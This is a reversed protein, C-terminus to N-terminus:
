HETALRIYIMSLLCFVFAQLFAAFLGLFMMPIPVGFGGLFGYFVESAQHEGYINGFLRLTLSLNRALHSVLEIGFMLLMLPLVVLLPSTVPGFLHKVHAGAGVERVAVVNYYVFSTIALGLPVSVYATAPGLWPVMGLLNSVLIFAGLTGLIKLHHRGHHPINEELLNAFGSVAVEFTQQVPGPREVSLARGGVFAVLTLVLFSVTAWVIAAPIPHGFIRPGSHQVAELIPSASLFALFHM